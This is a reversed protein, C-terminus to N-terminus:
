RKDARWYGDRVDVHCFTDYIGVGGKSGLIDNAHFSLVDVSAHNSRIDAAKGEVHQSKPSGGVNGNHEECRCASNIFIPNDGIRSRIKELVELLEPDVRSFGCGCKCAFEKSSFHDSIMM